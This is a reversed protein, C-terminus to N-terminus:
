AKEAELEEAIVNWETPGVAIFHAKLRGELRAVGKGPQTRMVIM